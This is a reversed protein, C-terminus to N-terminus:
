RHVIELNHCHAAASLLQWFLGRAEAAEEELGPCGHHGSAM